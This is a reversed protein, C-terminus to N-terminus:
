LFRWSGLIQELTRTSEHFGVEDDALTVRWAIGERALLVERSRIVGDRGELRVDFGVGEVGDVTVPTGPGATAGAEEVFGRVFQEFRALDQGKSLPVATVAITAPGDQAIFRDLSDAESAPTAIWGAPPRICYGFRVSEFDGEDCAPDHRAWSVLAFAGIGVMVTLLLAIVVPISSRPREQEDPSESPHTGGPSGPPPPLPPGPPAPPVPVSGAVGDLAGEVIADGLDDLSVRTV